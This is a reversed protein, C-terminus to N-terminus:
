RDARVRTSRVQTAWGLTASARSRGQGPLETPNVFVAHAVLDYFVGTTARSERWNFGFTFADLYSALTKYSLAGKTAASLWPRLQSMMVDINPLFERGSKPDFIGTLRVYGKSDLGHYGLAGDTHVTSGPEICDEVFGHLAAKSRDPILKLRIRGGGEDDAEAAAAILIEEGAGYWETERGLYIDDAEVLGKLKPPQAMAIRIKKFWLWAVHYSRLRLDRKLGMATAKRRERSVYWLARFWLTLPQHAGQFLTGSIV